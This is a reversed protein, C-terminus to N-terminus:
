PGRTETEQGEIANRYKANAAAKKEAEMTQNSAKIRKKEEESRQHAIDKNGIRNTM